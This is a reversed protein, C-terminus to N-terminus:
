NGGQEALRRAAQVAHQQWQRKKAPDTEQEFMRQARQQLQRLAAQNNKKQAAANLQSLFSEGNPRGTATQRTGRGINRMIRRDLTNEKSKRWMETIKELPSQGKPYVKPKEQKM